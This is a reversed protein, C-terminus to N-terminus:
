ALLIYGLWLDTALYIWNAELGSLYPAQSVVSHWLSHSCTATIETRNFSCPEWEVWFLTQLKGTLFFLIQSSHMLDPSNLFKIPGLTFTALRNYRADSRLLTGQVTPEQLKEFVSLIATLLSALGNCAWTASRIGSYMNSVHLVTKTSWMGQLEKNCCYQLPTFSFCPEWKESFCFERIKGSLNEFELSAINVM